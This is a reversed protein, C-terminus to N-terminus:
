RVCMMHGSNAAALTELDVESLEDEVAKPQTESPVSENEIPREKDDPMWRVEPDPQKHKEFSEITKVMKEKKDTM